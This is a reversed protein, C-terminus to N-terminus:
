SAEPWLKSATDAIQRMREQFRKRTNEDWAQPAPPNKVCQQVIDPLKKLIDPDEALNLAQRHELFGPVEVGKNLVVPVLVKKPDEWSQKLVESWEDRIYESALSNASILVLIVQSSSLAKQIEARWPQGAAIKKDSWVFVDFSTLAETLKRAWDEDKMSHSIFIRM